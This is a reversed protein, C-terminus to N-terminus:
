TGEPTLTRRLAAPSTGAHLDFAGPLPDPLGDFEALRVGDEVLRGLTADPDTPREAFATTGPGGLRGAWLEGIAGSVVVASLAAMDDVVGLSRVEVAGGRRGRVEVLLGGLGRGRGVRPALRARVDSTSFLRSGVESTFLDAVTAELPGLPAPFWWIGEGGRPALAERGGRVRDVGGRRLADDQEARCGPGSWGAGALRVDEVVDLRAACARAVLLDLGGIPGAGAVIAVGREKAEADLEELEILSTWLPSAAVVAAALELAPRGWRAAGGPVCLAVADLHGLARGASGWEGGHDLTSEVVRCDRGLLEARGRLRSGVARRRRPDDDVLLLAGVDHRRLLREAVRRGVAGLGVVAVSRGAVRDGEEGVPRPPLETM